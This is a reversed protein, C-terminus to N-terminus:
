ERAEEADEAARSPAGITVPKPEAGLRTTWMVRTKGAYDPLTAPERFAGYEGLIRALTAVQSEGAIEFALLGGPVLASAAQSALRRLVDLGDPGGYLAAKPEYLRVAPPLSAMLADDLYPPNSVVVDVSASKQVPSLVDGRALKVRDRVGHTQANDSAVKLPPAMTDVGLVVAGPLEAALTVAIAGSGVGVDVIRPTELGQARVWGLVLDVLHETEPRPVLVDPTVAFSRGYFERRGLIYAVPEAAARRRVLERFTGLEGSTLPRDFQVYLQVKDLGCVHSLLLQADLRPTDSGRGRFFDAAWTLLRGINWVETM